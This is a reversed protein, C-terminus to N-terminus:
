DPLLQYKIDENRDSRIWVRQKGYEKTWKSVPNKKWGAFGQMILSIENSDKKSPKSFPNDLANKWLELICISDGAKEELYAQIMGIRYDDEVSKEQIERIKQLVKKDAFPSLEHKDYHAKAEAWCQRIDGQIEEKHDFLEYGSQYVQVPYFRRNGTRDTLFQERNTTGIFICQRPYDSTRKDYPRRYHDVQRTLFSKVAEVEKAKTLALLEGLECIWAGEVAEMGKQGEIENVEAFFEDRMALWRVLTSKGEGQKTGILVPVDDFKCGPEFLRFIGGAFILRSVERTYPTDECKMWKTLFTEIRPTGDWETCDILDVVPNYERERFFIRLADDCKQTSHFHYTREIYERVAADDADTWRVIKGRFTKEPSCSLTNFRVTDFKPDNRLVSLFNAITAKPLGEKNLEFIIKEKKRANTRANEKQLKTYEKKYAKLIQKFQPLCGLKEARLEASVLIRAKSIEDELDFVDDLWDSQLLQEREMIDINTASYITSV